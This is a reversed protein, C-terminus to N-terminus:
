TPPDSPRGIMSFPVGIQRLLEIRDDSLRVEM